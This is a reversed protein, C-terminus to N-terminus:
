ASCFRREQQNADVQHPILPLTVTRTSVPEYGDSLVVLHAKGLGHGITHHEHIVPPYYLFFIRFNEEIIRLM